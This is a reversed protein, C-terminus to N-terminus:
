TDGGAEALRRAEYEREYKLGDLIKAGAMFVAATAAVFLM